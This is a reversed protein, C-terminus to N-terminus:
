PRPPASGPRVPAPDHPAGCAQVGLASGLSDALLAAFESSVQVDRYTVGPKVPRPIGVRDVVHVSDALPCAWVRVYVDAPATAFRLKRATVRTRLSIDPTGSPTRARATDATAPRAGGTQAAAAGGCALLALAVSLTKLPM